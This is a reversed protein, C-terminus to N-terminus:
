DCNDHSAAMMIFNRRDACELMAFFDETDKVEEHLHAQTPVGMIHTAAFSPLGGETRFYNGHLKAWAKELLCVWIEGDLSTAFAPKGDQKCPLHDDVVVLTDRGNLFFRVMYIGASNVKDTVFMAKVRNPVEALSSLTALFYSNRLSGQNVDSPQITGEFIHLPSYIVSARKWTYSNMADVDVIDM